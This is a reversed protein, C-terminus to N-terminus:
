AWDNEFGIFQERQLKTQDKYDIFVELAPIELLFTLLSYSIWEVQM